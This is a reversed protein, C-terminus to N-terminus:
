YHFPTVTWLLGAFKGCCDGRNTIAVRDISYEQGLDVIWWPDVERKTQTCSLHRWYDPALNGDVAKGADGHHEWYTSSQWSLKGM